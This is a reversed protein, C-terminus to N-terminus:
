ACAVAEIEIRWAPDALAAVVVTSALRRHGLAEARAPRSGLIDAPNALYMTVKVLNDFTMEAAELQLRLNRWALQSQGEISPPATGDPEIGLQGSVFLLRPAGSVEIAQSYAAAPQPASEASITHVQM